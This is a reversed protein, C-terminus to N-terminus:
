NIFLFGKDTLQEGTSPNERIIVYYYTGVPLLRDKGITARGNSYGRFINERGNSGGYNDTEFVVVGWRNFIRVNNTSCNEIGRVYFFDNLDNGDNPSITNFIELTTCSGPSCIDVTVTTTTNLAANCTANAVDTLNLTTDSSVRSVTVDATGDLGITVTGDFAGSYTVVDGVTGIITFVADEGSCVPSNSSLTPATLLTNVTVTTTTGLIVNTCVGSSVDILALTTDVIVGSVTVDVTGGSEITVTGSSAGSYTVV